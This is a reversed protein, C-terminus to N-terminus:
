ELTAANLPGEEFVWGGGRDGYVATSSVYGIWDPWAGGSLPTLARLAPCGADDPPATILVAEAAALAEGLAAADAPDVPAIGQAALAQRTQPDRSTAFARGGRRLTERAAAQGLYGGGFVLLSPAAAPETM